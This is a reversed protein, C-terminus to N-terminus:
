VDEMWTPSAKRKARRQRKPRSGVTHLDELTRAGKEKARDLLRVLVQATAAADGGARHRGEIAIGFYRAVSDLGRHKLEPVLRRALKLSCLAAGEM